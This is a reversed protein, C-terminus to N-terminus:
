RHTGTIRCADAAAHADPEPLPLQYTNLVILFRAAYLCRTEHHPPLWGSLTADSKERNVSAETLLLNSSRDNAFALRREPTWAWAGLDWAAALPVIHDVDMAAPSLHTLSKGTYPDNPPRVKLLHDRTTAYTGNDADVVHAWGDGFMSRDYGLIRPRYDIRPIEGLLTQVTAAPNPLTPELMTAM